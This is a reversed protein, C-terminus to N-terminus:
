VIEILGSYLMGQINFKNPSIEKAEPFRKKVYNIAAELTLTKAIASKKPYAGKKKSYIYNTCYVKYTKNKTM